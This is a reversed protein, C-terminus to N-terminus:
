VSNLITLLYDLSVPAFDFGPGSKSRLVNSVMGVVNNDKDVVPSGSFGRLSSLEFSPLKIRLNYTDYAIFSGVLKDQTCISKKQYSCGIATLTEGQQVPSERLSLVKLPSKNEKVEFVLWDKTLVKMDIKENVDQNILRGLEIYQEPKNNPHIRWQKIQKSITVATMSPTKAELLAHKVTVAYLKDKHRILFGNGVFSKDYKENFFKLQNVGSYYEDAYLSQTMSFCFLVMLVFFLNRLFVFPNKAQTHKFM